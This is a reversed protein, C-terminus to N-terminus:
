LIFCFKCQYLGKGDTNIQYDHNITHKAQIPWLHKFTSIGNMPGKRVTIAWGPRKMGQKNRNPLLKGSFTLILASHEVKPGAPNAGM